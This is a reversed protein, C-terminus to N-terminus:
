KSSDLLEKVLQGNPAQANPNLAVVQKWAELGGAKDGLDYLLVIGKNFWAQELAPQLGTAKEFAVIAEKFQRNRRYMVGLDTWVDAQGPKLALSKKYAEIAKIPQNSDFCFNGLQTWAEVNNPNEQVARELALIQAAQSPSPGNQEQGGVSQKAQEQAMRAPPEATKFSSFIVGGLFGSGLAVLVGVILVEKKVLGETMDISGM